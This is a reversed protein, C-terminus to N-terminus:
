ESGEDGTAAAGGRDKRSLICFASAHMWGVGLYVFLGLFFLLDIVVVACCM